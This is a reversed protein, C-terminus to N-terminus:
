DEDSNRELFEIHDSMASQIYELNEIKEALRSIHKDQLINLVMSCLLLIILGWIWADKSPQKM